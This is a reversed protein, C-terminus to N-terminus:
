PGWGRRRRRAVRRCRASEGAREVFTVFADLDGDGDLDRLAVSAPRTYSSGAAYPYAFRQGTDHFRAEADGIWVVGGVVADIHGDGDVDGLAVNGRGDGLRIRSDGFLGTGQSVRTRFEWVRPSASQGEDRGIITATSTVQILEGACFPRTPTVRVSGEEVRVSATVDLLRGTQSGHVVVSRLSASAPDVPQDFATLISTDIAASHTGPAPDVHVVSAAALLKRSELEEPTPRFTGTRQASATGRRRPARPLFPASIPRVPGAPRREQLVNM